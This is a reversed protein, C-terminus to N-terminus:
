LYPVIADFTGENTFTGVHLEYLVYEHFPIGTWQIDSWQYAAHDVVGSPGHVGGPQHHSAPDPFDKKGDPNFFYECGPKINEVEATFYGWQDQQMNITQETPRVIHLQMTKKLPAWVTFTCLGHQHYTAGVKRM